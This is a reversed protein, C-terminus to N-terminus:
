IVKNWHVCFINVEFQCTQAWGLCFICVHTFFLLLTVIVLSFLLQPEIMLEELGILLHYLYCVNIRCYYAKNM